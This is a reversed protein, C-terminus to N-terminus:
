LGVSAMYDHAMKIADKSTRHSMICHGTNSVTNERFHRAAPYSDKVAKSSKVADCQGSREKQCSIMDKDGNMVFVDGKYNPSPVQGFMASAIEGITVTDRQSWQFDSVTKDYNGVYCYPLFGRKDSAVLYGPDRVGFRYPM